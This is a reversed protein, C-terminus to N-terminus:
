GLVVQGIQFGLTFILVAISVAVILTDMTTEDDTKIEELYTEWFSKTHKM